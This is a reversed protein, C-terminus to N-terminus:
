APLVKWIADTPASTALKSFVPKSTTPKKSLKKSPFAIKYPLIPQLFKREATYHHPFARHFSLLFAKIATYIYSIRYFIQRTQSPTCPYLLKGQSRRRFPSLNSRRSTKKLPFVSYFICRFSYFRRRNGNLRELRSTKKHSTPKYSSHERSM